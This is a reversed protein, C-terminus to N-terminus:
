WGGRSCKLTGRGGTGRMIVFRLCISVFVSFLHVCCGVVVCMSVCVSVRADVRVCVSVSQCVSLCNYAGTGRMTNTRM